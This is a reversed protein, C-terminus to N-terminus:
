TKLFPFNQLILVPKNVANRVASIIEMKAKKRGGNGGQQNQSWRVTELSWPLLVPNGPRRTGSREQNKDKPENYNFIM